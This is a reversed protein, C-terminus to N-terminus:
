GTNRDARRTALRAPSETASDAVPCIDRLVGTLAESIDDLPDRAGALHHVGRYLVDWYDGSGDGPRRARMTIHVQGLIVEGRVTFGEYYVRVEGTNRYSHPTSSGM